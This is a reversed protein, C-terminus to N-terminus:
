FRGILKLNLRRGTLYNPVGYLNNNLDKVWFYSAVNNVQLINFVEISAWLSQFPGGNKSSATFKAIEKSFGIDVRRYAPLNYTENYRFPGNFYYPMKSGIVLNLQMKFTTDTPLEDQFLISFNVRQDTPRKIFGTEQSLGNEDIYSINEKTSLLSLNIWSELGAIFEGNVRTDFGMAYGESSNVADYRLKVNNITYPVLNTMHKYYVENILRFPRNWATFLVDSGVVFHISEQAQLQKNLQGRSNRLERYFPPQGYAGFSATIIWDKKKLSDYITRARRYDLGVTDILSMEYFSQNINSKLVDNHKKNPEISFQLRPSILMQNNLSWYHSRVGINLRVDRKKNLLINDQVYSLLRTSNLENTANIFDDLRIENQPYQNANLRYGSSDNYNWERLGDIIGETQHKVGIELQHRGRKIRTLAKISSVDISLQNRAHNIFYGFGLVSKAEAFNDSGLNNELEELRYAGEITFHERERSNYNSAIIKFATSDNLKYDLTAANLWTQYDIREAGGFGVFLRVAQQVTGFNTERSQPEVLYKNNAYTSYWSLKVKSSVKYTMLTQFDVFQPRYDGSVDLSGLIYQLSRYRAGVLYTFRDRKKGVDLRDQVHVSAGLLSLEASGSFSTPKNYEVDLVSSLKDGYKAAFGGSSFSVNNTMYPNIFSLGEQQGSRALFPRYVEIDNIYILNEDFNGGRVNYSTSLESRKRVGLFVKALGDEIQMQPFQVLDKPKVEIIDIDISPKTKDPPTVDTPNLIYSSLQFNLEIVSNPKPKNIRKSVSKSYYRVEIKHNKNSTLAVTYRGNRDTKITPLGNVYVPYDRLLSDEYDTVVGTVTAVQSQGYSYLSGCVVVCTLYFLYLSIRTIKKVM